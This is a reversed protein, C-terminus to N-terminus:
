YQAAHATHINQLNIELQMTQLYKRGHKQNVRSGVKKQGKIQRRHVCWKAEKQSRRNVYEDSNRQSYGEVAKTVKAQDRQVTLLGKQTNSRQINPNAGAM